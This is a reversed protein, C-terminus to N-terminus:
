AVAPVVRRSRGAALVLGTVLMAVGALTFTVRAGWVAVLAGGCVVACCLAWSDGASLLGFARGHLHEPVARQLMLRNSVFFIGNGLGILAFAPVALALVPALAAALMGLALAGFGLVDRGTGGLGSGAVLGVGSAGLLLALGTGGGALDHQSLALEAVNLMGGFLAALASCVILTRARGDILVDRVGARTAPSADGRAVPRVRLRALLLASALFTAANLGLVFSPSVVLLLGAAVAPGLLQGADRVMERLANAAPLEADSALAPVLAGAAPRFLASGIGALVACGVMAVTGPVLLLGVFAVARILDSAIACRRAGRRDILAGLAAGLLMGPAFDALALATAAWASGMRDYAILLLAVYGAADGLAGQAQAVISGRARKHTRWFTVANRM